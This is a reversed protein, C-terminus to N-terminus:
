SGFPPYASAVRMKNSAGSFEPCRAIAGRKVVTDRKTMRVEREKGSSTDAVREASGGCVPVIDRYQLGRCAVSLQILELMNGGQKVGRGREGYNYRSQIWSQQHEADARAVRADTNANLRTACHVRRTNYGVHM